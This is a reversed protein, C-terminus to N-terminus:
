MLNEPLIPPIRFTVRFGNGDSSESLFLRSEEGFVLKLRANVNSLAFGNDEQRALVPQSLKEELVALEEPSVSTGNDDIRFELWPTGNHLISHVSITLLNDDRGAVLGHTFYNEVLPHLTNKPIGYIKLANDIVFEYEFNGFRYMYLNILNECLNLEEGVSVYLNRRTQNRYMKSLLLIMRSANGYHGQMVQVRIQELTNYLFHPNISTQMAYLEAKKQSIEYLYAKEVNKQLEDCMGNFSQIIETFEDKSKPVELRYDLNNQGVRSMGAQIAKIKKDSRYLTFGYFLISAFCILFVLAALIRLSSRKGVLEASVQYFALYDYEENRSVSFFHTKGDLSRSGSQVSTDFVEPFLLEDSSSYNGESSFLINGDNDALIFSGADDLHAATISNTFEATSYLIILQGLPLMSTGRYDFLTSSLGFVHDAPKEYEDSLAILQDDSLVQLQYPTFTIGAALNLTLPVLTDYSPNYQFLRGNGTRLLVGRCYQDYQCIERLMQIISYNASSVSLTRDNYLECLSQYRSSSSFVPALTNALANEKASLINSLNSLEIDYNKLYETREQQSIMTSGFLYLAISVTCVAISCFLLMRSYYGSFIKKLM